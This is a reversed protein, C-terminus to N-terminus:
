KWGDIMNTHTNFARGGEDQGEGGRLLFLARCDPKGSSKEAIARMWDAFLRLM